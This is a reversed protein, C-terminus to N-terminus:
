QWFGLRALVDPEVPLPSDGPAFGNAELMYAVLASYTEPSYRGHDEPGSHDYLLVTRFREVLAGISQGFWRDAFWEGALPPAYGITSGQWEGRLSEHHCPACVRYQFHGAAAQAATFYVADLGDVIRGIQGPPLPAPAPSLSRLYAILAARDRGDAIGTIAMTTRPLFAAPDAIFADLRDYTWTAGAAALARM